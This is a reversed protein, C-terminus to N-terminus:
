SATSSTRGPRIASRTGARLAGTARTPRLEPQGRHARRLRSKRASAPSRAPSRIPGDTFIALAASGGALRDHDTTMSLGDMDTTAGGDDLM